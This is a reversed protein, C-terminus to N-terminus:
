ASEHPTEPVCFKLKNLTEDASVNWGIFALRTQPEGDWVTWESKGGVFNVVVTRDQFQVPGKMRFVEWPLEELFKVFLPEDLIRSTQYSFTVFGAADASVHDHHRAQESDDHGSGTIHPHQPHDAAPTRFFDM